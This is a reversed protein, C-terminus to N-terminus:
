NIKMRGTYNESTESYIDVYLKICCKLIAAYEKKKGPIGYIVTAHIVQSLFFFVCFCIALGVFFLESGTFEVMLHEIMCIELHM